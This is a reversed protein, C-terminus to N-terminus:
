FETRDKLHNKKEKRKKNKKKKKKKKSYRVLYTNLIHKM